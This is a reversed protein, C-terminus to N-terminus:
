SEPPKNRIEYLLRTFEKSKMYHDLSAQYDIWAKWSAEWSDNRWFYDSGGAGTIRQIYDIYEESCNECFRYPVRPDPEWARKGSPTMELQAGCKECKFTCHACRFMRQVAEIKRKRLRKAERAQSKNLKEGLPIIDAM